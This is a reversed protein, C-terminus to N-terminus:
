LSTKIAEMYLSDPKYVTGDIETDLNFSTWNQIDSDFASRQIINSFGCQKLLCLLSYRDYMWQHNEGSRRFRGIKLSEYDELGLIPRLLLNRRYNSDKWFRYIPRVIRKVFSDSSPVSERQLHGVEILKQAEAGARKLVFSVNPINEQFLYAAMEGGSHNRAVQDFLELLLWNYNDSEVQSGSLAQELSYIYSRAIKELDPVAIRLIGQPRLVRYCDQLFRTAQPRSFHELLHSHYVVAFTSGRFPIGQTLDYSIINPSNSTFNVNTWDPHIRDGCGLNLLNM